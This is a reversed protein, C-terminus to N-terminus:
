DNHSEEMAQNILARHEHSLSDLRYMALDLLAFQSEQEELFCSVAVHDQHDIRKNMYSYLINMSKRVQDVYNLLNEYETLVDVKDTTKM